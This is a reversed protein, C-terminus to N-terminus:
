GAAAAVPRGARLMRIYEDYDRGKVAFKELVWAHTSIMFREEALGNIVIDALQETTIADQGEPTDAKGALIPTQVAAPCLV